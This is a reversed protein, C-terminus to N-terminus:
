ENGLYMVGWMSNNQNSLATFVMVNNGAEDVMKCFVGKYEVDNLTYTMYPTGEEVSWEGLITDLDSELAIMGNSDFVYAESKKATTNIDIGHDLVHYIGDLTDKDYGTESIEEGQYQFPLACLWGDKNAFMQHIRMQHREGLDEFRTHYFLYYKGDEVLFSNHGTSLYGKYLSPLHYGGMVKVGIGENDKGKMSTAMQGAADYYPGDPNESRFMRMSYGGDAGLWGVSAFLWYYGTNEDYRIYPGEGSVGLGYVLRKGFYKDTYNNVDTSQEEDHITMGTAPDLEIIWLGGSWSGYTMWMRGDKDFFVSPDIANPFQNTNYDAGQFYKQNIDAIDTTGWVELVNTNTVLKNVESKRDFAEFKTFGSYILTDVHKYGSEVNKSVAFGIVSRCYTSSTSYYMMYAGKTGDEWVYNENYVIDPAWIAYGGYCDSDNYGAWKFPEELGETLVGYISSNGYGQVGLPKWTLLDSSSGQAMHSGFVYYKGSKPDKFISPDHCEYKMTTNTYLAPLEYSNEEYSLASTPKDEGGDEGGEGCGALMLSSAMVSILGLSLTRKFFDKRM